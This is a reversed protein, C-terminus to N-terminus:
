PLLSTTRVIVRLEYTRLKRCQQKSDRINIIIIIFSAAIIHRNMIMMIMMITMSDKIVMMMILMKVASLDEDSKHRRSHIYQLEEECYFSKLYGSCWHLQSQNIGV